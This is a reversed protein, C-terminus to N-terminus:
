PIPIGDVTFTGGDNFVDPGIPSTNNMIATLTVTMLGTASNWLGGGENTADNALVASRDITVTGAGTLHLGGGNGPSAGTSNDVLAVRRLHTVGVNAEVGGGARVADNGTVRTGDMELTGDNNLVGGGSGSTGTASNAVIAGGSVLMTGGDNFLGGGGQDSDNGAAMNGQVLTDEITMVGVGSNWLGGGEASAFNDTFESVRVMVDGAGSLHLGGGNGPSAGTMNREFVSTTILTMGEVIEIGGGARNSDNDRVRCLSVTLNGENNFLGGGSGSGETASNARVDCLDVTMVGGDNFIGGGGNSADTGNAENQVFECFSIDM